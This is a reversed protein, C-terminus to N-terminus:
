LVPTPAPSVAPTPTRTPALVPATFAPDRGASPANRSVIWLLGILLAAGLSVLMAGLFGRRTSAAADSRSGDLAGGVPPEDDSDIVRDHM